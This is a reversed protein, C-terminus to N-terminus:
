DKRMSQQNDQQMDAKNQAMNEMKYQPEQAEMYNIRNSLDNMMQDLQKSFNMYMQKAM